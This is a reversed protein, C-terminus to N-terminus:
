ALMEELDINDSNYFTETGVQRVLITRNLFGQANWGRMQGTTFPGHTQQMEAKKRDQVQKAKAQYDELDELGRTPVGEEELFGKLQKETMGEVKVEKLSGPPFKYEWQRGDDVAAMAALAEAQAQGSDQQQEAAALRGGIQAKGDSFVNHYGGALLKDAADTLRDFLEKSGKSQSAKIRRMAKALNEGEHVNAVLLKLLAPKDVPEEEEEMAEDRERGRKARADPPKQMLGHAYKDQVEELWADRQSVKFRDEIYHGTSADFHGEEREMDTNFPEMRIGSEDEYRRRESEEESDESHEWDQDADEVDKINRGTKMSTDAGKKRKHGGPMDEDDEDNPNNFRAAEEEFHKGAGKHRRGLRGMNDGFRAKKNKREIEDKLVSNVAADTADAM